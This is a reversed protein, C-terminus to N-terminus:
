PDNTADGTVRVPIADEVPEAHASPPAKPEGDKHAIRDCAGGFLTLPLLLVLAGCANPASMPSRSPIRPTYVRVRPPLSGVRLSPSSVARLQRLDPSIGPRAIGAPGTASAPEACVGRCGTPRTA